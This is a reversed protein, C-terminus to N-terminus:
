KLVEWDEEGVPDFPRDYFLVSGRLRALSEEGRRREEDTLPLPPAHELTKLEFVTKGADTVIITEGRRQASDLLEATRDEFDKRTVHITM